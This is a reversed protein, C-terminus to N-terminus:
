WRWRFAATDVLAQTEEIVREGEREHTPKYILNCISTKIQYQDTLNNKLHLNIKKIFIFTVNNFFIGLWQKTLWMFLVM